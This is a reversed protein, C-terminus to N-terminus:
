RLKANGPFKNVVELSKIDKISLNKKKSAALLEDATKKLVDLILKVRKRDLHQYDKGVKKNLAEMRAVLQRTDKSLEVLGNFEKRAKSDRLHLMATMALVQARFIDFLPDLLVGYVDNVDFLMFGYNRTREHLNFYLLDIHELFAKSSQQMDRGIKVSLNYTNNFDSFEDYLSRTGRYQTEFKEHAAKARDSLELFQVNIEDMLPRYIYVDRNREKNEPYLGLLETFFGM